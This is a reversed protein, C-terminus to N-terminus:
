VQVVGLLKRLLEIAPKLEPVREEIRYRVLIAVIASVKARYDAIGADGNKVLALTEYATQIANHFELDFREVEDQLEPHAEIVKQYIPPLGNRVASVANITNFADTLESRGACGFAVLLLCLIATKGLTQTAFLANRLPTKRM